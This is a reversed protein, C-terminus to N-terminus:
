EPSHEQDREVTLTLTRIDEQTPYEGTRSEVVGSSLSYVTGDVSFSKGISLVDHYVTGDIMISVASDFKDACAGLLYTGPAQDPMVRIAYRGKTTIM